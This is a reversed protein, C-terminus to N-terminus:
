LPLVSDDPRIRSSEVPKRNKVFQLKGSLQRRADDATAERAVYHTAIKPYRPDSNESWRSYLYREAERLLLYCNM